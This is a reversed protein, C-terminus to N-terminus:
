LSRQQTVLGARALHKSKSKTATYKAPDVPIGNIRIEYHLHAGTSRGTNGVVAIVDGRRVKDGSKVWHKSNHAYRTSIGYGHDIVLLQGYGPQRGSYSVIGDAPAHISAGRYTSIDLGTHLQPLGTFPDQRFGFRSSIWGRTPLISPSARLFMTTEYLQQLNLEHHTSTDSIDDLRSQLETARPLIDQTDEEQGLLYKSFFGFISGATPPSATLSGATPLSGKNQTAGTASAQVLEPRALNSDGNKDSAAVMQLETAFTNMRALKVEIRSMEEDMGNVKERLAKNEQEVLHANDIKRSLYFNYVALGICLAILIFAVVSVCAMARSTVKVRRAPSDRKPFLEITFLRNHKM